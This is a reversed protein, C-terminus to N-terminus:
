MKKLMKMYLIKYEIYCATLIENNRACLAKIHYGFLGGKMGKHTDM